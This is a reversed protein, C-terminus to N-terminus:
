TILCLPLASIGSSGVIIMHDLAGRSTIAHLEKLMAQTGPCRLSAMHFPNSETPLRFDIRSESQISLAAPFQCMMVAPMRDCAVVPDLIIENLSHFAPEKPPGQHTPAGAAFVV